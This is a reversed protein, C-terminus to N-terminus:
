NKAILRSLRRRIKTLEKADPDPAIATYYSDSIGFLRKLETARAPPVDAFDEEAWDADWIVRDLLAQVCDLWRDMDRSGAAPVSKEGAERCADRIRKRVSARREDIEIEVMEVINYYIAAVTAESVATLKPAPIGKGLVARGVLDLMAWQQSVTLGDFLRVGVQVPEDLAEGMELCSVMHALSERLLAANAGALVTMGEPTRWM